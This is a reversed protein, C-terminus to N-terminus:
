ANFILRDTKKSLGENSSGGPIWGRCVVVAAIYGVELLVPDPKNLELFPM